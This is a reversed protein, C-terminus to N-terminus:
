RSPGNIFASKAHCSVYVLFQWPHLQNIPQIFLYKGEGIYVKATRAKPRTETSNYCARYTESDYFEIGSAIGIGVRDCDQYTGYYTDYVFTGGLEGINQVM